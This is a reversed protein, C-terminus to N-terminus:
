HAILKLKEKQKKTITKDVDTCFTKNQGVKCTELRQIDKDIQILRSEIEKDNLKTVAWLFFIELLFITFANAALQSVSLYESGKLLSSLSIDWVAIAIPILAVKLALVKGSFPQYTLKM